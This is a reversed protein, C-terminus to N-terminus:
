QTTASTQLLRRSCNETPRRRALNFRRPEDFNTVAYAAVGRQFGAAPYNRTRCLALRPVRQARAGVAGTKQVRALRPPGFQPWGRPALPACVGCSDFRERRVPRSKREREGRTGPPLKGVASLALALASIGDPARKSGSKRQNSKRCRRWGAKICTDITKAGKLATFTRARCDARAIVPEPAIKVRRRKRGSTTRSDAASQHAASAKRSAIGVTFIRV